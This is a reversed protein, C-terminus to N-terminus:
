KLFKHVIEAFKEPSDVYPTHGSDPMRHFTCNSISSAFEEGYKVPIVPDKEGWVVMTPTTISKLKSTIVDANKLGLLTSMFSMKANPLQMREVFRSIIRSAVEPSLEFEVEGAMLQYANKASEESPYLAALVYADLAPTSHKMIGSPSVLVLKKVIDSNASTFEASIQGGLSSGIIKTKEFGMNNLFKGFFDVFFDMTYDVPPKDSLGFGILDPAILRYKKRLFPFAMEWRESGAGLGHVMVLPEKSGGSDLYRIKNGDISVFNEDM